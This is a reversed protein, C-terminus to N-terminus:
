PFRGHYCHKTCLRGECSAVRRGQRRTFNWASECPWLYSVGCAPRALFRLERPGVSCVSVLCRAEIAVQSFRGIAPVPGRLALPPVM